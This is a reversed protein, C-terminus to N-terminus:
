WAYCAHLSRFWPWLFLVMWSLHSRSVSHLQAFAKGFWPTHKCNIKNLKNAHRRAMYSYWLSMAPKQQRPWDAHLHPLNWYAFSLESVLHLNLSAYTDAQLERKRGPGSTAHWNHVHDPFSAATCVHGPLGSSPVEMGQGEAAQLLLLFSSFLGHCIWDRPSAPQAAEWSWDATCSLFFRLQCCSGMVHLWAGHWAVAHRSQTFPFVGVCLCLWHSILLSVVWSIDGLIRHFPSANEKQYLCCFM